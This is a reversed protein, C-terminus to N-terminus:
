EAGSSMKGQLGAHELRPELRGRARRVAARRPAAAVPGVHKPAAPLPLGLSSLDLGLNSYASVDLTLSRRSTDM